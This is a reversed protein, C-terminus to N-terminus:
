QILTGFLDYTDANIIEADVITGQKIKPAKEIYVLGDVEPADWVTRGIANEGVVSDVIVPLIKGIM